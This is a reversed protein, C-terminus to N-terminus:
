PAPVKEKPIYGLVFPLLVPILAVWPNQQFTDTAIGATTGLLAALTGFLVWKMKTAFTLWKSSM